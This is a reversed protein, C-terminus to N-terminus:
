GESAGTISMLTGVNATLWLRLRQNTSRSGFAPDLFYIALAFALDPDSIEM